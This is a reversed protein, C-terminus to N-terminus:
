RGSLEAGARAPLLWFIIVSAVSLSGIVFYGLSVDAPVLADRGNLWLSVHVVLAAVGVGFSQSLQQMM